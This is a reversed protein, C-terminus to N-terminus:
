PCTVNDTAHDNVIDNNDEDVAFRTQGAISIVVARAKATGRSDCLTFTGAASPVGEDDFQIYNLANFGTARLTNGGSLAQSVKLVQDGADFSRNGNVDSLVIWGLEWTSVNSCSSTETLTSAPCVTVTTNPRKAAESRAYAMLSSFDYTQSRLRNDQVTATFSPAGMAMLVGAITLVIMLEILTFGHFRRM